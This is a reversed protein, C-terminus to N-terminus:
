KKQDDIEVKKGVAAQKKEMKEAEVDKSM